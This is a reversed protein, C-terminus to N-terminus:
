HSDYWNEGQAVGVQLAVRLSVANEMERTLIERAAAVDERRCEVILEDHVQLVLRADLGSERLKQDVRIMALKIIDAATGQIPSNMAVREGFHQMNKNQMRLEPIYRRRGLLTTVFGDRRADEVVRKLYADIQPYTAFYSDIYEKAKAMSVHLDESLSFAGIGYVIGFNM